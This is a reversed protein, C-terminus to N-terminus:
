GPQGPDFATLRDNNNNNNNHGGWMYFTGFTMQWCSWLIYSYPWSFQFTLLKAHAHTKCISTHMILTYINSLIMLIPMLKKKLMLLQLHVLECLVPKQWHFPTARRFVWLFIPKIYSAVLSHLMLLLWRRTRWLTQLTEAATILVRSYRSGGLHTALASVVAWIFLWIDFCFISV